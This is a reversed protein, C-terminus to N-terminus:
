EKNECQKPLPNERQPIVKERGIAAIYGKCAPCYWGTRIWVELNLVETANKGCNPCPVTKFEPSTKV